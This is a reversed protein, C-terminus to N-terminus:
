GKLTIFIIFLAVTGIALAASLRRYTRATMAHNTADKELQGNDSELKNARTAQTDFAERTETLSQKLAWIRDNNNNCHSKHAEIVAKIASDFDLEDQKLYATLSRATEVDGNIAEIRQLTEAPIDCSDLLVSLEDSVIDLRGRLQALYNNAQM